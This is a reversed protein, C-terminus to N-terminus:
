GCLTVEPHVVHESFEEIDPSFLLSWIVLLFCVFLVQTVTISVVILLLCLWTLVTVSLIYSM